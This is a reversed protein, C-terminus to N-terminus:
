PIEMYKKEKGHDRNSLIYTTTANASRPPHVDQNVYPSAAFIRLGFFALM